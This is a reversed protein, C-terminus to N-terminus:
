RVPLINKTKGLAKCFELLFMLPKELGMKNHPASRQHCENQRVFISLTHSKQAFSSQSWRTWMKVTVSQLFFKLCMMSFQSCHAVIGCELEAVELDPLWGLQHYWLRLSWCSFFIKNRKKSNLVTINQVWLDNKKEGRKHKMKPTEKENSSSSRRQPPLVIM